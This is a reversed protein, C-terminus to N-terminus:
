YGFLQCDAEYYKRVARETSMSVELRKRPGENTKSLTAESGIQGTVKNFDAEITEFKGIFNVLIKMDPSCVFTHQPRFHLIDAITPDNQLQAVFDDFNPALRLGADRDVANMGGQRLYHYASHLRTLPDRVFCFKFLSEAAEPDRKYWDLVTWHGVQHGFLSLSVASGAAKPIHIFIAGSKHFTGHVQQAILREGKEERFKRALKKFM